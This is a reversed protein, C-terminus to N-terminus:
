KIVDGHLSKFLIGSSNGQISSSDDMNMTWEIKYEKAEREADETVVIFEVIFDLLVQSKMAAQAVYRINFEGLEIVRLALSKMLKLKHIITVLPFTIFVEITYCQFIHDYNEFRFSSHM